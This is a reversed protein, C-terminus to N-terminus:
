ERNTDPVIEGRVVPVLGPVQPRAPPPLLVLGAVYLLTTGFAVYGTAPLVASASADGLSAGELLALVVRRVLGAEPDALAGLVVYRGVFACGLVVALSRLLRPRDPRAALTNGLLVLFFVNGLVSPLGREPTLANLLQASGLFLTLLAVAGSANELASRGEGVLRTPSLVGGQALTGLLLVALVLSFLPPPLFEMGSARLRFGGLLAVTLFVLPLLLAERVARRVEGGEPRM